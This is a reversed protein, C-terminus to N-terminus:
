VSLLAFHSVAFIPTQGRTTYLISIPWGHCTFHFILLGSLVVAYGFM